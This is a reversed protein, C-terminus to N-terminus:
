REWNRRAAKLYGAANDWQGGVVVPPYDDGMRAKLKEGLLVAGGGTLLIAAMRGPERWVESFRGLLLDVLPDLAATYPAIDRMEGKYEFKGAALWQSVEHAKPTFGPCDAWIARAIDDLAGLLGFGDGETFRSIEKLNNTTLINLTNGGLDAVGVTKIWKDGVIQGGPSLAKDLLAGYSQTIVLVDEVTVTQAKERKFEWPGLLRQKLAGAHANYDQLPLGVVIKATATTQVLESLAASFLIRYTDSYVWGPDRHSSAYVSQILAEAGVYWERGAIEIPLVGNESFGKQGTVTGVVSPFFAKRGTTSTAKVYNYGLDIGALM